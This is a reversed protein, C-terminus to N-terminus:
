RRVESVGTRGSGAGPRARSLCETRGLRREIEALALSLEDWDPPKVLHRDFGASATQERTEDSGYATVAVLYLSQGPRWARLRRAVECGDMGPMNVDILCVDPSFRLAAALASHGDYCVEVECGHLQLLLAESDAADRNDDVCLVRIPVSRM